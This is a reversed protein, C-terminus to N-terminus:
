KKAKAINKLERLRFNKLNDNVNETVRQVQGNDILYLNGEHFGVLYKTESLKTVSVNPMLYDQKKGKDDYYFFGCPVDSSYNNSVTESSGVAYLRRKKTWQADVYGEDNVFASYDELYANPYQIPLEGCIQKGTADYIAKIQWITMEATYGDQLPFTFTNFLSEDSDGSDVAKKDYSREQYCEKTEDIDELKVITHWAISRAYVEKTYGITGIRENNETKEFSMDSYFYDYMEFFTRFSKHDIIKELRWDKFYVLDYFFLTIVRRERSSTDPPSVWVDQIGLDKCTFTYIHETIDTIRNVFDYIFDLISPLNQIYSEASSDGVKYHNAHYGIHFDYRHQWYHRYVAYSVSKWSAVIAHTVGNDDIKLGLIKTSSIESGPPLHRGYSVKQQKTLTHFREPESSIFIEANEIATESAVNCKDDLNVDDVLNDGCYVYVETNQNVVTAKYVATETSQKIIDVDLLNNEDGHHFFKDDNVIWADEAINYNKLNGSKKVYGRLNDGLVPVGKLIVPTNQTGEFIHGFIVRGDTWVTDGVHCPFNGITRLNRGQVDIIRGNGVSQIQTQFFM